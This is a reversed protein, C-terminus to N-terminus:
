RSREDRERLERLHRAMEDAREKAQRIRRKEGPPPFPGWGVIRLGEYERRFPWM